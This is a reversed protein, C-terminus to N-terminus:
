FLMWVLFLLARHKRLKIMQNVYLMLNSIVESACFVFFVLVRCASNFVFFLAQTINTQYRQFRILLVRFCNTIIVFYRNLLEILIWAFWLLSFRYCLLTYVYITKWALSIHLYLTGILIEYCFHISYTWIKFLLVVNRSNGICKRFISIFIKLLVTCHILNETTHIVDWPMSYSLLKVKKGVAILETLM